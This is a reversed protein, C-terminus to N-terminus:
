RTARASPAVTAATVTALWEILEGPDPLDEAGTARAALVIEGHRDAVIAGPHPLGPIVDATVVCRGDLARISWTHRALWQRYAAGGAAPLTVLVLPHRDRIEGYDVRAGDATSVVFHPLQQGRGLTTPGRQAPAVASRRRRSM